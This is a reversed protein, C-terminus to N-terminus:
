GGDCCPETAQKGRSNQKQHEPYRGILHIYPFEVIFVKDINLIFHRTLKHTQITIPTLPSGTKVATSRAGMKKQQTIAMRAVQYGAELRNGRPKAKRIKTIEGIGDGMWEVYFFRLCRGVEPILALFVPLQHTPQCTLVNNHEGTPNGHVLFSSHAQLLLEGKQRRIRWRLTGRENQHIVDWAGAALLIETATKQQGAAPSAGDGFPFGQGVTSGM